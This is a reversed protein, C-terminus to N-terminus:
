CLRMWDAFFQDQLITEHRVLNLRLEYSAFNQDDFYVEGAQNHTSLEIKLREALRTTISNVPLGQTTM